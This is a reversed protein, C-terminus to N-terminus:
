QEAVRQGLRPNWRALDEFRTGPDPQVLRQDVLACGPALANVGLQEMLTGGRLRCQEGAFRASLKLGNLRGFGAGGQDAHRRAHDVRNPTSTACSRASM